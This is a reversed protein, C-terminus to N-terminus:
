PLPSPPGHGLFVPGVSVPTEDDGIDNTNAYGLQGHDGGGWCHVWGNDLIACTHSDGVALAGATRGPGLDVTKLTGPTEDDGITEDDAYGLQGSAGWGWCRVTDDDLIACTHFGNSGASIATATRGAGLDVPGVSGPTELEGIDNTNAYGLQGAWGHGWCRVKGGGVSGGLIVCTYDSGGDVRGAHIRRFHTSTSAQEAMVLTVSSALLAAGLPLIAVISRITRVRLLRERPLVGAAPSVLTPCIFANTTGQEAGFRTPTAMPQGGQIVAPQMAAISRTKHIV